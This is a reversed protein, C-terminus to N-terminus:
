HGFFIAITQKFRKHLYLKFESIGKANDSTIMINYVYILLM